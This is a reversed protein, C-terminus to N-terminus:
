KAATTAQARTERIVTVKVQGAYEAEKELRRAIDNALVTLKDEEVEEPRVIIRVDRGAQFAIAQEVGSFSGSIEEIKTMRKVYNEYPEYRAGPRSGSIADAIWVIVSETSSFPKDEHHESVAAVVEKPFGFRKVTTVGADVHNGEVDTVVKGIDHLLCGLRVVETNAGIEAAIAVGIKTEEITHLGLNQGYSTRFKFRGILKIVEIPLNFVGCEQVIKKGEELLIDEMQSKVQRVVEEIRSPQIRTDKLLIELSRRAIERRISDFSSLRIVNGEDLEIEVGTEKEFSRINRGERGIIRGKAEESDVSVTSVTYEAVYTTAGHKMADALIERAKDRAELKIREEGQRIKKAIDVTLNKQIVDLLEKKAEDRTLSAVKELKSTLKEEIEKLDKEKRELRNRDKKIEELILKVDDSSM